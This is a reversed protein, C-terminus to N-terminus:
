MNFVYVRRLFMSEGGVPIIVGTQLKRNDDAKPNLQM